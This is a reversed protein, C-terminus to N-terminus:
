KLLSQCSFMVNYDIFFNFSFCKLFLSKNLHHFHFYFPALFLTPHLIRERNAFTGVCIDPFSHHCLSVTAYGKKGDHSLRSVRLVELRRGIMVMNYGPSDILPVM